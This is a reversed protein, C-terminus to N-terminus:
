HTSYPNEDLLYAILKAKNPNSDLWTKTQKIKEYDDNGFQGQYITSLVTKAEQSRLEKQWHSTFVDTLSHSLSKEKLLEWEGSDLWVGNASASFDLRHTSDHSIKYKTMLSGSVPCLLAKNSEEINITTSANNQKTKGGLELWRLYDSIYLWNGKCNTCQHVLLSGDLYNPKLTGNKCSTCNM